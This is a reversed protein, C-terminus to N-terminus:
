CFSCFRRDAATMNMDIMPQGDLKKGGSMGM